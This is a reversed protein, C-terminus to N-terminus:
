LIEGTCSNYMFKEQTSANGSRQWGKRKEVCTCVALQLVHIHKHRAERYVREQIKTSFNDDASQM